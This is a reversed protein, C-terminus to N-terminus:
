TGFSAVGRAIVMRRCHGKTISSVHEVDKLSELTGMKWICKEHLSVLRLQVNLMRGAFLRYHSIVPFM